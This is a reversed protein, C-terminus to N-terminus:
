NLSRHPIACSSSRDCLCTCVDSQFFVTTEKTNQIGMALLSAFSEKRLRLREEFPMDVGTLSHLDVVSFFQEPEYKDSFQPDSSQDHLRKWQRLAGLYNGLHPVGTPQIGSFVRRTKHVPVRENVSMKEERWGEDDDQEQRWSENARRLSHSFGRKQIKHSAFSRLLVRHYRSPM